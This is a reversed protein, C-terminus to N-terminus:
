KHIVISGGGLPGPSAVDIDDSAGAANDYVLAGSASSWIKIRFRDPQGAGLLDGDTATLLFGYGSAGNITGTGKYQAKAGAVVLWQYSTPQFNLGVTQFHFETNGSPVTAGKAYKAVFGFSAKGTATPNGPYAGPPSLIWGGGTVFGASPDYVVVFAPLGAVTSASGLGGDKDTVTLVVSYVGAQPFTYTAGTTGNGGSETVAGAATLADFSWQATHTDLIGPDTFAGSFTVPAGVQYLAGSAPATITVSPAVNSIPVTASYESSGGDKDTIKGRVTVGPNDIATCIATSTTAPPGYGAGCDFAYSFGALTDRSSPDHPSSLSLAFTSGEPVASIPASFTASPAVNRVLVTGTYTSVSGDKDRIAAAIARTGNDDTPCGVSSASGFASLGAGAGCDFAYTFGAATDAASADHAGTLSVTFSSGEDLAAPAQLTAAPALNRVTVTAELTTTGGDKDSIRARIVHTSPGDDFSCSTSFGAAFTSGDCAIAYTFGAATDAASPDSAGTVSVPFSSGEDVAAPAALAAAPAVNRVVVTTQLDTSGGDKDIIRGRVVHSSPGDDFTCTSSAGVAAYIPGNCAVQYTFGTATDAASPDSQGSFSITAPSGEDVPGSNGLVATPAVNVVQIETRYETSGGDKDTVRALVTHTSDGDDFTCSASATSGDGGYHIGDCAFAYTFGARTDALSVDTAGSLAVTAASGERVPGSSSVVATPAVNAVSVKLKGTGSAGFSDTVVVTVTYTGNDDYVHSLAFTKDAALALPQIATGDGYDVTATWTNADPDAFSGASTMASGENTSTDPGLLVKPASNIIKPAGPSDSAVVSDAAAIVAPPVVGVSESEAVADSAAVVAPPLVSVTDSAYISDSVAITVPPLVSVTDAVAVADTAGVGAPPFIGAVDSVSVSDAANPGTDAAATAGIVAACAVTMAISVARRLVRSVDGLRRARGKRGVRM